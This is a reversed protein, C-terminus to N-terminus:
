VRREDRELEEVEEKSIEKGYSLFWHLMVSLPVESHEIAQLLSLLQTRSLALM